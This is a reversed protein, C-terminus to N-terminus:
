GYPASCFMWKLWPATDEAQQRWPLLLTPLAGAADLWIEPGGAGQKGPGVAKGTAMSM